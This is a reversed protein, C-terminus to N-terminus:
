AEEEGRVKAAEEVAVWLDGEFEEGAGFKAVQGAFAEIEGDAEDIRGGGGGENGALQKFGSDDGDGGRRIQFFVAARCFGNVEAAVMAELEAIRHRALGELPLEM